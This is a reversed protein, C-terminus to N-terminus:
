IVGQSRLETYHCAKFKKGSGCPCPDNRGVRTWDVDGLYGSGSGPTVVPAVASSSSDTMAMAADDEVRMMQMPQEQEPQQVQV